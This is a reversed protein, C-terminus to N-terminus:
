RFGFPRSSRRGPGGGDGSQAPIVATPTCLLFTDYSEHTAAIKQQVESQRPLHDWHCIISMTGSGRVGILIHTKYGVQSQGDSSM